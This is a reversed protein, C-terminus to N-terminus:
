GGIWFCATRSSKYDEIRSNKGIILYTTARLNTARVGENNATLVETNSRFVKMGDETIQTTMESGSKSVTLGEADFKYGTATEVKDVGTAIEQKIAIAIEDASMTAEVSQKLENTTEVVSAAITETNIQLQAINEKNEATESAVIDIQKNVKDVKAFTQKLAEGLTSPNSSTESDSGAYSWQTQEAFFGNYTITDNLLYTTAEANDKTIFTIKDGIELLFNGRWSCVFQNITLGGVNALANEVLEAIDERLSWFPNDRVYQTTGTQEMKAIVNDGLETAHCVATLRRNEKSELTFYREKDITLVAAGHIDLRKFVLEWNSNIFYITQTAEAIANLLERVSETGELNAGQADIAELATDQVGEVKFPLGLLRACAVAYDKITLPTEPLELEAVTHKNARYLADYATVSLENTLEDRHTETVEFFPLTYIYDNEVGFEVEFSNATTINIQRATDILKVNLKQCVGYGFFKSEDGVREITFEKLADAYSFIQTLASGNYLEVRARIQRAPANIMNEISGGQAVGLKAVGLKAVGLRATAVGSNANIM